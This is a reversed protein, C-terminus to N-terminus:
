RAIPQQGYSTLSWSHPRKGERKVVRGRRMANLHALVSRYSLGTESAVERASRGGRRLSAIIRTRAKLGPRVNRIFALYSQPEIGGTESAVDLSM